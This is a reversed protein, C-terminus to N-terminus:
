QRRKAARCPTELEVPQAHRVPLNQQGIFLERAGSLVPGLQNAAEPAVPQRQLYDALADTLDEAAVDVGVQLSRAGVSGKAADSPQQRFLDPAARREFLVHQANQGYFALRHGHKLQESLQGWM